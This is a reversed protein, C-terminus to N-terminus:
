SSGEAAEPGDAVSLYYYEPLTGHFLAAKILWGGEYPVAPIGIFRSFEKDSANSGATYAADWSELMAVQEDATPNCYVSSGNVLSYVHEKGDPGEGIFRIELPGYADITEDYHADRMELLERCPLSFQETSCNSVPYALIHDPLIRDALEESPDRILRIRGNFLNSLSELLFAHEEPDQLPNFPHQEASSAGEEWRSASAYSVGVVLDPGMQRAMCLATRDYRLYDAIFVISDGDNQLICYDTEPSLSLVSGDVEVTDTEFVSEARISSGSELYWSQDALNRGPIVYLELSACLTQNLNEYKGNQQHYLKVVTPEHELATLVYLHESNLSRLASLQLILHRDIRWTVVDDVIRWAPDMYSSSEGLPAFGPALSYRDYVLYEEGDAQLTEAEPLRFMLIRDSFFWLGGCILAMVLVLSILGGFKKKAIGRICKILVALLVVAAASSALLVIARNKASQAAWQWIVGPASVIESFRRGLWEAVGPHSSAITDM